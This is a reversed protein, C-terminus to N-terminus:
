YKAMFQALVANWLVSAREDFAELRWYTKWHMGKPKPPFFDDVSGDGGLRERVEQDRSIIRQVRDESQSAYGLRCCRRCYFRSGGYLVRCRRNCGPCRFWQRMGGFHMPTHDFHVTQQVSEWEEDYERVRFTLLLHSSYAWYNIDGSPEGGFTWHLSYYNGLILWGRKKLFKLDIRKYGECTGRGSRWRHGSGPGGM